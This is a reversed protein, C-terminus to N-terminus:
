YENMKKRKKKQSDNVENQCQESCFWEDTPEKGETIEVCSYHFWQGNPCKPNECEIMDGFSPKKCKCYVKQKEGSQLNQTNEEPYEPPIGNNNKKGKLTKYRRKKKKLFSGQASNSQNDEMKKNNIFSSADDNSINKDTNGLPDDINNNCEKKGEQIITELGNIFSHEVIYKIGEIIKLKYDSLKELEKNEIELLELLPTAENKLENGKCEQLFKETKKRLNLEKEKSSEEVTKLLKTTRVIKRPIQNVLDHFKDVFTM